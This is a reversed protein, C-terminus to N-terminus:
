LEKGVGLSSEGVICRKEWHAAEAMYPVAALGRLRLPAVACCFITIM